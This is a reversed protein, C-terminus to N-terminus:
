NVSILAMFRRSLDVESSAGAGKAISIPGSLNSVYLDGTFLKIIVKITLWSLQLTKEVKKCLM